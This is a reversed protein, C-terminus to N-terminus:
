QPSWQHKEKTEYTNGLIKTIGSYVDDGFSFVQQLADDLIKFGGCQNYWIVKGCHKQGKVAFELIDSEFIVKGEVDRLGTSQMYDSIKHYEYANYYNPMSSRDHRPSEINLLSKYYVMKKQTYDYVRFRFRDQM